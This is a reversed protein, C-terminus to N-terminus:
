WRRLIVDVGTQKDYLTRCVDAESCERSSPVHPYACVVIHMLFDVSNAGNAEDEILGVSPMEIHVTFSQVLGLRAGAKELWEYLGHNQHDEHIDVEFRNIAWFMLSAEGRIQHCTQLLAPESHIEVGDQEFLAYAYIENRIEAPLENFSSNDM